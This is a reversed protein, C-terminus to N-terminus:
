KSTATTEITLSGCDKCGVHMFLQEAAELQIVVHLSGPPDGQYVHISRVELSCRSMDFIM